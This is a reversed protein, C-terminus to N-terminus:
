FLILENPLHSWLVGSPSTLGMLLTYMWSCTSGTPLPSKTGCILEPIWHLDHRLLKWLLLCPLQSIRERINDMMPQLRSELDNIRWYELKDQERLWSAFVVLLLFFRPCSGCTQVSDSHATSTSVTHVPATAIPHQHKHLELLPPLTWANEWHIQGCCGNSYFIRTAGVNYMTLM